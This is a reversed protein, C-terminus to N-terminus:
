TYINKQFEHLTVGVRSAIDEIGQQLAELGNTLLQLDPKPQVCSMDLACHLNSLQDVELELSLIKDVNYSAHQALTLLTPVKGVIKSLHESLRDLNSRVRSAFSLDIDCQYEKCIM